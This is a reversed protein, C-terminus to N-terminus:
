DRQEILLKDLINKSSPGYVGDATLNNKKQFSKLAETTERGYKGDAGSPISEGLEILVEQLVQVEPGKSGPKLVGDPLEDQIKGPLVVPEKPVNKEQTVPVTQKDVTTPANSSKPKNQNERYKTLLQIAINDSKKAAEDMATRGDVVINPNAGAELLAEMMEIRGNKALDPLTQNMVSNVPFGAKLMLKTCFINNYFVQLELFNQTAEVEAQKMLKQADEKTKVQDLASKGGLSRLYNAMESQGTIWAHDVPYLGNKDARNVSEGKNLLLDVAERANNAAAYIFPPADDWDGKKVDAGATILMNMIPIDNKTAAMSLAPIAGPGNLNSDAGADVLMKVINSRNVPPLDLAYHLATKGASDLININPKDNLVQKVKNPDASKIAEILPISDKKIETKKDGGEQLCANLYDSDLQTNRVPLKLRGKAQGNLAYVQREAKDYVIMPGIKDACALYDGYDTRIVRMDNWNWNLGVAHKLAQEAEKRGELDNDTVQQTTENSAEKTIKDNSCASLIGAALFVVILLSFKGGYKM